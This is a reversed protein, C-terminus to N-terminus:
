LGLKRELIDILMAVSPSEPNWSFNENIYIMADDLDAFEDLRAMTTNYMDANGGFLDRMIQYRDNIGISQRLSVVSRSYIKDAVDSHQNQKGLIENIATGGPTMVEGLVKKAPNNNEAASPKSVNSQTQVALPVNRVVSAATEPAPVPAPRQVPAPRPTTRATQITNDDGYLSRVTEKDMKARVPPWPTECKQEEPITDFLDGNVAEPSVRCANEVAEETLVASDEETVAEPECVPDPEAEPEPKPAVPMEPAVARVPAKPQEQKPTEQKSPTTVVADQSRNIDHFKISDYITRLKDLAVDREIHSVDANKEWGSLLEKVEDIQQSIKNLDM